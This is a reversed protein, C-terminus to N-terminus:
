KKLFLKEKLLFFDFLKRNCLPVKAWWLYTFIGKEEQSTFICRSWFSHWNKGCLWSFNNGIQWSAFATAIIVCSPNYDMISQEVWIEMKNDNSISRLKFSTSYSTCLAKFVRSQTNIICKCMNTTLIYCHKKFWIM